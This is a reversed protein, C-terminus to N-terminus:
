EFLTMKLYAPFKKLDGFRFEKIERIHNAIVRSARGTWNHQYEGFKKSYLLFKNDGTILYLTRLQKAHKFNYSFSAHYKPHLCYLSWKGTDYKEIDGSFTNVIIDCMKKVDPDGTVRYYDYVGYYADIAGNLIYSPPNACTEQPFIFDSGKVVSVGGVSMDYYISEIAKKAAMLYNEDKTVCYARLLVSAGQGQAMGSFWPFGGRDGPFDIEINYEWHYFKGHKKLNDRLWDACKTFFIKAKNDKTDLYYEYAGFAFQSITVPNYYDKGDNVSIPIGNKGFKWREVLYWGSYDTYYHGLSPGFLHDKQIVEIEKPVYEIEKFLFVSIFCITSVFVALTIWKFFRKAKKM